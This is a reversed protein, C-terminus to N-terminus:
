RSLKPKIVANEKEEYIATLNLLLVEDDCEITLQNALNNMSKPQLRVRTYGQGNYDSPSVKYYATQEYPHDQDFANHTVKLTLAQQTSSYLTLIYSKLYSKKNTTLGYYATSYKLPVVTSTDDLSDLTYQWQGTNNGVILGKSTNYLRLGSQTAKKDNKTTIIGNETSNDRVFILTNETQLVLTKDRVSYQGDIIPEMATFRQNKQLSREGNFVYLSNDFGSRFYVLTEASAIYQMGSAPAIITPISFFGSTDQQTIYIWEGDFLYTQGLLQFGLYSGIFSNGVLYGEYGNELLWTQNTLNVIDLFYVGGIAIPVRTQQTYFTGQQSSVVFKSGDNLTSFLYAPNSVNITAPAVAPPSVYTNVFFQSNISNRFGPVRAGLVSINGSTASPIDIIKVGSDIGNSFAGQFLTVAESTGTVPTASSTFLMRGNWDSSGIGVQRTQSNYLNLLSITNIKYLYTSEQQIPASPTRSLVVIYWSGDTSDKYLTRRGSNVQPTYSDDFTGVNTLLTGMADTPNGDLVAVSLTAQNAGALDTGTWITRIEFPVDPVVGFSNTLKGFGLVTTNTNSQFFSYFSTPTSQTQPVLFETISSSGRTLTSDSYNFGIHSQKIANANTIGTTPYQQTATFTTFDTYGVTSVTYYNAGDFRPTEILIHRTKGNSIQPMAYSVKLPTAQHLTEDIIYGTNLGNNVLALIYLGNEYRYTYPYGLISQGGLLYVVSGGAPIIYPPVFSGSSSMNNATGGASGAWLQSNYVSLTTISSAGVITGNNSVGTGTGTADYNKWNTGDWSALRGTSGSGIVWTTGFKTISLIDSIGVATQNNTFALGSNYNHFAGSSYNGLLGSSACFVIISSDAYMANITFTSTVTANNFIPFPTSPVSVIISNQTGQGNSGVIFRGPGDATGGATLGTWGGAGPAPTTQTTWTIGDPSTIVANTSTANQFFSCWIGNVYDPRGLGGTSSIGTRATWNIGDTSTMVVATSSGSLSTAVFIGNGFTVHTWGNGTGGAAVPTTRATWTIGDPSTIVNNTAGSGAARTLVVYLGAGYTIDSWGLNLSTPTSRSTWTIADPSTLITTQTNDRAGLVYLGNGYGVSGWGSSTPTTTTNRLTWTIGDPSTYVMQNDATSKNGALVFLGGGFTICQFTVGVSLPRGTWTQGDTSTLFEPNNLSSQIASLWIGNGYAWLGAQNSSTVGQTRLSWSSASTAPSLTGSSNVWGGDWSAVLGGGGAVMLVGPSSPTNVATYVALATITNSGILTANSTPAPINRGAMLTTQTTTYVFKTSVNSMSGMRGSGGGVILFGSWITMAFITVAGILTANDSPGTGIGSADYNKWASGDWSGLLGGAGAVVLFGNWVIMCQITQNNVVTGGNFPGTGSGSGDYNKWNFGDFSAVRGNAGAVVLFGNYVVSANIANGTGLMTSSAFTPVIPQNPTSEKLIITQGGLRLLFEQSDAYHPSQYRVFNISTIFSVYPLLNTFTVTRSSLLNNDFDFESITVVNVNLQCTIYTDGVCVMPDDVNTIRVRREIGWASINAVSNGDVVLNNINPDSTPEILMTQGNQTEFAYSNTPNLVETEWLNKVGGLREIGTNDNSPATNDGFSFVDENVTDVNLSAKLNIELADPTNPV